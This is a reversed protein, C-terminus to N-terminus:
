RKALGRKREQIEMMMMVAALTDRGEPHNTISGCGV